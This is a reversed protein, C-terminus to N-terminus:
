RAAALLSVRPLLEETEQSPVLAASTISSMLSLLILTVASTAVHSRTQEIAKPDPFGTLLRIGRTEEFLEM